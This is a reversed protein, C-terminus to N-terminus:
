SFLVTKLDDNGISVALPFDLLAGVQQWFL